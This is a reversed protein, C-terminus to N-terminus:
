LLRRPWGVADKTENVRALYARAADRVVSRDQFLWMRTAVFDIRAERMEGFLGRPRPELIDLLLAHLLEHLCTNVSLFPVRNGHAHNLAIMCLHYGHYGTTVGGLARGNDWHMPIHHTVVFNLVGPKLGHVEPERDPPRWMDAQEVTTQIRVGCRLLDRAAEDWLGSQFQEIQEPRWKVRADFIQHVPVVVPVDTNAAPSLAAPILSLLLRRTM